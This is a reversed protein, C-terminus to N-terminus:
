FFNSNGQIRKMEDLFKKLSVLTETIYCNDSKIDFVIGSRYDTNKNRVCGTVNCHGARDFRFTIDTHASPPSNKLSAAPDAPPMSEFADDLELYLYYLNGITIDCEFRCDAGSCRYTVEFKGSLGGTQISHETLNEDFGTFALVFREDSDGLDIINYPLELTSSIETNM